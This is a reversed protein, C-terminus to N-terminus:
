RGDYLVVIRTGVFKARRRFFWGPNVNEVIVALRLGDDLAEAIWHHRKPVYGLHVARHCYSVADKTTPNTPGRVLELADGAALHPLIASPKGNSGSFIAGALVEGHESIFQQGLFSGFSHGFFIIKVGPADAVLRRNVAWLDDLCKRWGHRDALHGLDSKAASPGHGRHDNAYVLYGEATLAGALREYRGAHECIGHAIQVAAKPAVDPAWRYIQIKTGDDRGLLFRSAQM